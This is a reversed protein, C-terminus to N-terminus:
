IGFYELFGNVKKCLTKELAYQQHKGASRSIVRILCPEKVSSIWVMGQSIEGSLVCGGDQPVM